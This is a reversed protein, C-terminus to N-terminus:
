HNTLITYNNSNKQMKSRVGSQVWGNKRHLHNPVSCWESGLRVMAQMFRSWRSPQHNAWTRKLPHRRTKGPPGRQFCPATSSGTPLEIAQWINPQNSEQTCIWFHKPNSKPARPWGRARDLSSCWAKSRHSGRRLWNTSHWQSRGELYIYYIYLYLHTLSLVSAVM